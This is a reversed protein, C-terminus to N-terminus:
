GYPGETMRSTPPGCRRTKGEAVGVKKNVMVCAERRRRRASVGTSGRTATVIRRESGGLERQGSRLLTPTFVCLGPGNTWRRWRLRFSRSLYAFTLAVHCRWPSCRGTDRAFRNCRRALGLPDSDMLGSIDGVPLWRFPSVCNIKTPWSQNSSSWSTATIFSAAPRIREARNLSPRAPTATNCGQDASQDVVRGLHHDAGLSIAAQEHSRVPLHLSM